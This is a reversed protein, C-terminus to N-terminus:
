PPPWLVYPGVNTCVAFCFCSPLSWLVELSESLVLRREQLHLISTIIATTLLVETSGRPELADNPFLDAPLRFYEFGTQPMPTQAMVQSPHLPTLIVRNLMGLMGFLRFCTHISNSDLGQGLLQQKKQRVRFDPNGFPIGGQWCMCEWFDRSCGSEKPESGQRGDRPLEGIPSHAGGLIGTFVQERQRKEKEAVMRDITNRSSSQKRRPAKDM